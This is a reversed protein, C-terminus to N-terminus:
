REMLDARPVTPSHARAPEPQPPRHPTPRRLRPRGGRSSSGALCPLRRGGRRPQHLDPYALDLSQKESLTSRRWVSEVAEVGLYSRLAEEVVESDRKGTRAALVKAARLVGDDVYITTKRKAM